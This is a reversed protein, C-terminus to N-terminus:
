GEQWSLGKKREEGTAYLHPQEEQPAELRVLSNYVEM